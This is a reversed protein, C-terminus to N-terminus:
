DVIRVGERVIRGRDIPTMKNFEDRKITRKGDADQDAPQGVPPNGQQDFSEAARTRALREAKVIALAADAGTSKGDLEMQAVLAEHGPISQERVSAIRDRERQAGTATLAEVLDPRSEALTEPQLGAVIEATLAVVLDPHETKLQELDMNQEQQKANPRAARPQEKEYESFVSVRTNSDAGLPVFSTEYVESELWVEAPGHVEQGNVAMVANQGLELVTLPAVGISAQWPFGEAALAKVERAPETADSFKGSVRFTGDASTSTSYGVIQGHDHDRFIPMQQSAQIGDVAVVLKGWWRDVVAGTYADIDFGTLTDAEPEKLLQVPAQFSLRQCKAQDAPITKPTM